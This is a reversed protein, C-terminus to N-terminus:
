RGIDYLSKATHFLRQPKIKKKLPAVWATATSGLTVQFFRAATLFPHLYAAAHLHAAPRRCLSQPATRPGCDHVSLGRWDM